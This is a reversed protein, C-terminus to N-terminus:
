FIIIIRGKVYMYARVSCILFPLQMDYTLHITRACYSNERTKDSWYPLYVSVRRRIIQTVTKLVLIINMFHLISSLEGIPNFVHQVSKLKLQQGTDRSMQLNLTVLSFYFFSASLLRSFPFCKMFRFLLLIRRSKPPIQVEIIFSESTSSLFAM